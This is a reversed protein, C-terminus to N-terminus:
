FNLFVCPFQGCYDLYLYPYFGFVFGRRMTQVKLIQQVHLKAREFVLLELRGYKGRVGPLQFPM